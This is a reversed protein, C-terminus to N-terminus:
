FVDRRPRPLHACESSFEMDAIANADIAAYVVMSGHISKEANGSEAFEEFRRFVSISPRIASSLCGNRFPMDTTLRNKRGLLPM